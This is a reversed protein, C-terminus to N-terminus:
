SVHQLDVVLVVRGAFPDPRLPRHFRGPWAQRPRGHPAGPLPAQQVEVGWGRLVRGIPWRTLRVVQAAAPQAPSPVLTEAMGPPLPGCRHAEGRSSCCSAGTWRYGMLRDAVEAFLGALPPAPDPLVSPSARGAPQRAWGEVPVAPLHCGALQLQDPRRPPAPAWVPCSASRGLSAAPAGLFLVAANGRHRPTGPGPSWGGSLSRRWRVPRPM